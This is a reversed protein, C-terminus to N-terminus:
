LWASIMSLKRWTRQAGGLFYREMSEYSDYVMHAMMEAARGVCMCVYEAPDSILRPFDMISLRPVITCHGHTEQLWLFSWDAGFVKPALKFEYVLRLWKRMDEKLLSEVFVSVFGGRWGRGGRHRTPVGASGRADFFFPVIHPQVQSVLCFNVHFLLKLPEFPLDNKFSGDIWVKGWEHFPEIRGDARKILLEQPPLLKPVASSALVASYIVIDPATRYNLLKAQHTHCNYVNINLIRGTRQV